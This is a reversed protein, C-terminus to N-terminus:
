LMIEKVKAAGKIKKLCRLGTNVYLSKVSYRTQCDAAQDVLVTSKSLM